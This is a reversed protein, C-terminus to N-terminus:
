RLVVRKRPRLNTTRKLAQYAKERFVRYLAQRIWFDEKIEKALDLRLFLLYSHLYDPGVHLPRPLVGGNSM